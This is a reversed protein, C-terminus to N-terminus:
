MTGGVSTDAFKIDVQVQGAADISEFIFVRGLIDKRGQRLQFLFGLLTLPVSKEAHTSESSSHATNQM